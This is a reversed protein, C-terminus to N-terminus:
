AAQWKMQEIKLNMMLKRRMREVKKLSNQMSNLVAKLKLRLLAMIGQRMKFVKQMKTNLGRM